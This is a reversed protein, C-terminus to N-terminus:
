EDCVAKHANLERIKDRLKAAEEFMEDKVAQDLQKKLLHVEDLEDTKKFGFVPMDIMDTQYKPKSGKHECSGQIKKIYPDSILGFTRYCDQCGFIGNKIFQNYTTHCTKCVFNTKQMDDDTMQPVDTVKGLMNSILESLINGVKLNIDLNAYGTMRAACKQCLHQEKKIGNSIETFTIVAENSQCVDCLM